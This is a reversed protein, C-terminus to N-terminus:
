NVMRDVMRGAEIRGWLFIGLAALAALVLIIGAALLITGFSWQFIIGAIVSVVLAVAAYRLIEIIANVIFAAIFFSVVVTVFLNAFGM